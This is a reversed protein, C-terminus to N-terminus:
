KRTYMKTLADLIQKAKPYNPDIKVCEQINKLAKPLDKNSFYIASINFYIEADNKEIALCKEYFYLAQEKKKLSYYLNAIKKSSFLDQFNQNYLILINLLLSTEKTSEIKKIATLYPYKDFPKDEILVNIEDFYKPYNSNRFYSDALKLHAKEWSLTGNIIQFALSDQISKPYFSFKNDKSNINAFPFDNKLYKIRLDAFISDLPTYFKLNSSDLKFSPISNNSFSNNIIKIKNIKELIMKAILRNGEFTPHLHDMMFNSGIVKFPSLNEFARKVDVLHIDHLKSLETLIVNFEEPARFRLEDKDKILELEERSDDDFNLIASNFDNVLSDCGSYKCLPEQLLNSPLTALITPIKEESCRGLIYNVNTEFQDVGSHYQDSNIPVLTQGAVESMLTKGSSEENKFISIVSGIFNEVLQITRFNKLSLLTRKLFLNHIGSINSAPGLAGYYENHGTYFILLDPHEEIVDDIIDRITITNIASIGLNIVEFDVYPYNQKLMNKLQRPFSGNPPHPFGATTSGGLAFIRFTNNKKIKQFGDAIVAPTNPSDGFYKQPLKPNFFLYDEFQDSIKVFTKFDYGYNFFMLSLELLIILIIPILAAIIYFWKPYKNIEAM